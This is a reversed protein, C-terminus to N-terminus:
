NQVVWWSKKFKGLIILVFVFFIIYAVTMTIGFIVLPHNLTWGKLAIDTMTKGVIRIPLVESIKRLLYPQGELSWM